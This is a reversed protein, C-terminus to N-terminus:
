YFLTESEPQVTEESSREDPPLATQDPQPVPDMASSDEVVVGSAPAGLDEAVPAEEMPEYGQPEQYSTDECASLLGAAAVLAAAVTFRM